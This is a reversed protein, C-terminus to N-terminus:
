DTISDFIKITFAIGAKALLSIVTGTTPSWDDMTAARVSETIIMGVADGLSFAKINDNLKLTEYNIIRGHYNEEKTVTRLLPKNILLNAIGVSAIGLVAMGGEFETAIEESTKRDEPRKNRNRRDCYNYDNAIEKSWGEVSANWAGHALGFGFGMLFAKTKENNLSAFLNAKSRDETSAETTIAYQNISTALLFLSLLALMYQKKM